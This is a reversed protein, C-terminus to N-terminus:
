LETYIAERASSDIFNQQRAECSPRGTVPFIRATKGSSSGARDVASSLFQGFLGAVFGCFLPQVSLGRGQAGQFSFYSNQSIFEVM